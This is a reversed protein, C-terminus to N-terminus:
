RQLTMSFEHRKGDRLVDITVKDGVLYNNQVYRTFEEATMELHKGDFGLVVDGSRIGTAKLVSSVFDRQRFALQTLSLGLAKKEDATLDKGGVRPYPLLGRM